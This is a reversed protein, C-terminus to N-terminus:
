NDCHQVRVTKLGAQTAARQEICGPVAGVAAAYASGLMTGLLQRM